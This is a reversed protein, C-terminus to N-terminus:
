CPHTLIGGLYEGVTTDSMLAETTSELMTMPRESAIAKLAQALPAIKPANSLVKPKRVRGTTFLFCVLVLFRVLAEACTILSNMIAFCFSHSPLCVVFPVVLPAKGRCLPWLPFDPPDPM